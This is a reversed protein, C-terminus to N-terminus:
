LFFAGEETASYHLLVLLCFHRCSGDGEDDIAKAENCPLLILPLLGRCSAANYRKLLFFFFLFFLLRGCGNNDNCQLAALFFISFPSPMWATM